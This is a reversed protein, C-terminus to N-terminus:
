RGWYKLQERDYAQACIKEAGTTGANLGKLHQVKSTEPHRVMARFLGDKTKTVGRYRSTMSAKSRTENEVRLSDIM